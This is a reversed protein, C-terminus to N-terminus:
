PSAPAATVAQPSPAPARRSRRATVVIPLGGEPALTISRRVVRVEDRALRADVRPLLASLVMKIEYQAFAAGICRRLGGGFPMWEWPAPKFTLFREPRFRSPDPYLAPRTHLLYTSPAVITGEALDYTGIRMRRKLMRAVLPVIPQLRLSEKVTADLLPLRAIREPDGGATAIEDRLKAVLRPEPLLWRLAWALSTATTEHGALLLTMLEDHVEDESLPQGADDRADLMMALVDTRGTTGRARGARIEERLLASARQGVDQLRRWPTLPGLDRQLIPFLLLPSAGADLLDKLLDALRRFRAGEEVGFVTRIIVDLTVSQMPRHVAFPEGVRWGDISDNALDIMTRGYAHMREGHFAPQMMKRHRQHPERDLLILSNPGLFPKLVANAEGAHAEEAGLAFVQKVTEPESVVVVTLAPLRLTFSDGYHARTQDLLGFPDRVWRVLNVVPHSDPGPPNPM